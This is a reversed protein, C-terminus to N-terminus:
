VITNHLSHENLVVLDACYVQDEFVENQPSGHDLDTKEREKFQIM